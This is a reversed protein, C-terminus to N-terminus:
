GMLQVHGPKTDKDKNDHEINQDSYEHVGAHGWCPDPFRQSLCGLSLLCYADEKKTM